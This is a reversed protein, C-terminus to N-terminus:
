RPREAVGSFPLVSVRYNYLRRQYRFGSFALRCRLGNCQLCPNEGSLPCVVRVKAVSSLMPLKGSRSPPPPPPPPPSFKTPTGEKYLVGSVSSFFALSFVSPPLHCNAIYALPSWVPFALARNCLSSDDRQHHHNRHHPTHDQFVWTNTVRYHAPHSPSWPLFM